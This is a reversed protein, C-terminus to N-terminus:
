SDRLLSTLHLLLTELWFSHLKVLLFFPFNLAVTVVVQIIPDLLALITDRSPYIDSVEFLFLLIGLHFPSLSPKGSDVWLCLIGYEFPIALLYFSCVLTSASPRLLGRSPAPVQLPLFFMSLIEM